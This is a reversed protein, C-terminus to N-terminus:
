FDSCPKAPEEVCTLMAIISTDVAVNRALTLDGEMSVLMCSPLMASYNKRQPFGPDEKLPNVLNPWTWM